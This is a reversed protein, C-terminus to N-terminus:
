RAGGPPGIRLGENQEITETSKGRYEYLYKAHSNRMKGKRARPCAPM